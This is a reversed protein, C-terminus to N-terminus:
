RGPRLSWWPRAFAYLALLRMAAGNSADSLRLGVAEGGALALGAADGQLRDHLEAQLIVQPDGGDAVAEIKVAGSGRARVQVSGILEMGQRNQKLLEAASVAGTRLAWHFPQGADLTAGPDVYGVAGDAAASALLMQSQGLRRDAPMGAQALPRQVRAAQSAAITDLSWRRGPFYHYRATFPSFRISKDWGDLYSVKLIHSCTTAGDLPVGIRACKVEHDIAVWILREYAWNIREWLGPRDPSPGLLEDSVLTPASGDFRYAGTRHVLLCYGNGVAVARPGCAGVGPSIQQIAWTAPEGDNPTVLYLGDRLAVYIQNRFEFVATVPEGSGEAVQFFGTDGFYVGADAPESCYVTSSQAADGWWLMRQTTQSFAVGSLKPLLQARFQDSVDNSAALFADDFNFTASTTTNDNVVTSTETVGNVVQTEGIYFYPGDSSGGAVTFAVVRAVVQDTPAIPLSAVTAQKGGAAAWNAISLGVPSLSGERTQYLVLVYRVGAAINGTTGSDAPSLPATPGPITVPDLHIGDFSAPTGVGQRGDGFALYARGFATVGEMRAGTPIALTHGPAAAALYGAGAPSEVLLAGTADLVLPVETGDTAVYGILGTITTRNPSAFARTIGERSAVESESFRLNVAETLLSVDLMEPPWSCILGGFHEIPVPIYGQIM